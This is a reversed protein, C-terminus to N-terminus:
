LHNIPFACATTIEAITNTEYIYRTQEESLRSGEIRNTNYALKIQTMHYIGGKLGGSKEERFKLLLNM